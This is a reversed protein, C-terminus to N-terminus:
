RRSTKRANRLTRLMSESGTHRGIMGTFPFDAPTVAIRALTRVPNPNVWQASQLLGATAPEAAFGDRPVIYLWGDTLLEADPQDTDVSFFYQRHQTEGRVSWTGNRTSRFGPGRALLAFWMAWVPDDSAFVARQNGFTTSDESERDPRLESLNDRKTGHFLVRRHDALWQLYTATPGPPHLQAQSGAPDVYNKTFEEYARHTAHDLPPLDPLRPLGLLWRLGAGPISRLTSPIIQM